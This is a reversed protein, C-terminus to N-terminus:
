KLKKDRKELEVELNKLRQIDTKLQEIEKTLKTQDIINVKLEATNKIIKILAEASNAWKSQPYKQIIIELQERAAQYNNENEPETLCSLAGMFYDTDSPAFIFFSKPSDATIKQCKTENKVAKTSCSAVFFLIILYVFHYRIKDLL